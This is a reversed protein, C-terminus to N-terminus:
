RNTIFLELISHDRTPKRVIQKLFYNQIINIFDDSEHDGAINLWDINRHNFDGM